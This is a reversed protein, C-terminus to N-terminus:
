HLQDGQKKPFMELINARHKAYLVKDVVPEDERLEDITITRVGDLPSIGATDVEKLQNIYEFIDNLQGGYTEIFNTDADEELRALKAVKKIEKESLTKSM